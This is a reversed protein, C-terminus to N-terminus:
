VGKKLLGISVNVRARRYVVDISERNIRWVASGLHFHGLAISENIPLDAVIACVALALTLDLGECMSEFDSSGSSWYNATQCNLEGADTLRTYRAWNDLYEDLRPHEDQPQEVHLMGRADGTMALIASMSTM